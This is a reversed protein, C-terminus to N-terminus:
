AWSVVNGDGTQVELFVKSSGASSIEEGADRSLQDFVASADIM